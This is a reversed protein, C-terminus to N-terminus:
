FYDWLSKPFPIRNIENGEQGRMLSPLKFDKPLDGWRISTPNDFGTHSTIIVPYDNYGLNSMAIARHRGEHGKVQAIRGSRDTYFDLEPITFDGGEQIIRQVRAMKDPDPGDRLPEAMKLFDKPDMRVLTSRGKWKFYDRTADEIAKDFWKPFTAGKINTVGFGPFYPEWYQQGGGESAPTNRWEWWQSLKGIPDPEPKQYQKFLEEWFNPGPNM